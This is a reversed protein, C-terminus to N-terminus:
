STSGAWSGLGRQKQVIMGDEVPTVCARVNPIGDVIVMCDPCRGVLCYGGRAEGTRPMQRLVRVGSALLAAILPEGAVATIVHGEFTISASGINAM